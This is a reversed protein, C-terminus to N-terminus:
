PCSKFLHSEMKSPLTGVEYKDNSNNIEVIFDKRRNVNAM